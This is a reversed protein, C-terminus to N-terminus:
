NTKKRCLHFTNCSHANGERAAWYYPATLQELVLGCEPLTPLFSYSTDLTHDSANNTHLGYSKLKMETLKFGNRLILSYTKLGNFFRNSCCVSFNISILNVTVVATVPWTARFDDRGFDHRGFGSNHRWFNITMDGSIRFWTARFSKPHHSKRGSSKRAVQGYVVLSTGYMLSSYPLRHVPNKMLTQLKHSFFFLSRRRLTLIFSWSCSHTISSMLIIVHM